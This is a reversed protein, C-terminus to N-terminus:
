ILNNELTIMLMNNVQPTLPLINELIQSKLNFNHLSAIVVRCHATSIKIRVHKGLSLDHTKALDFLM